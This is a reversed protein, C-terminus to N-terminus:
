SLISVPPYSQLVRVAYQATLPHSPYQQSFFSMATVPPVLSWILLYSLEPKNQKITNEDVLFQLAEPEDCILLPKSRVLNTVEKWLILM